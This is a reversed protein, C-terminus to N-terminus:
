GLIMSRMRAAETFAPRDDDHAVYPGVPVTNARLETETQGSSLSPLFTVHQFSSSIGCFSAKKSGSWRSCVGTGLSAKSQTIANSEALRSRSPRVTSQM